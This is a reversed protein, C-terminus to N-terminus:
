NSFSLTEIGKRRLQHILSENSKNTLIKLRPQVSALTKINSILQLVKAGNSYEIDTPLILLLGDISKVDLRSLLSVVSLIRLVSASMQDISGVLHFTFQCPLIPKEILVGYILDFILGAQIWRGTAKDWIGFMRNMILLAGRLVAIGLTAYGGVTFFDIWM